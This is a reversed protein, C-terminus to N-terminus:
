QFFSLKYTRGSNFFFVTSKHYTLRGALVVNCKTVMDCMAASPCDSLITDSMSTLIFCLHTMSDSKGKISCSITLSWRALILLCLDMPKLLICWCTSFSIAHNSFRERDSNFHRPSYSLHGLVPVCLTVGTRLFPLFSSRPVWLGILREGTGPFTTSCSTRATM